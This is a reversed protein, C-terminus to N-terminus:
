KIPIIDAYVFGDREVAEGVKVHIASSFMPGGVTVTHIEGNEGCPDCDRPLEALLQRTWKKGAIHAPLHKALIRAYVDYIGGPGSGVILVPKANM